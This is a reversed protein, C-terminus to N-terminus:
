RSFVMFSHGRAHFIFRISRVLGCQISRNGERGPAVKTEWFSLQAIKPGRDAAEVALIHITPDRRCAGPHRQIQAEVPWALRRTMGPRTGPIWLAVLEPPSYSAFHAGVNQGTALKNEGSFRQGDNVRLDAAEGRSFASLQIRRCAGPHRQIQAEVQWTLRRTMGPRTGPIWRARLSSYASHLALHAGVNQGPALRRGLSAPWRPRASRARSRPSPDRSLRRFSM